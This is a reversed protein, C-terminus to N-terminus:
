LNRRYIEECMLATGCANDRSLDPTAFFVNDTKLLTNRILTNSMVGGAFLVPTDPYDNKLNNCVKQISSAIYTFLFKATDCPAHNEDLMKECKNQLGSFSIDYGKVSVKPKFNEKSKLSLADLEKGCPFDLGLKIGLRDIAQGANLDSSGGLIQIDFVKDGHNKPHVFVIESTGGSIHFSIIDKGLLANNQRNYLAARIHGAQHSFCYLHVNSSFAVASAFSQGALFCPMYSCAIDRPYGSYAVACIKYDDSYIKEFLEKALEPLAKTHAFLAESQRLGCKGNDVPLLRRVEAIIKGKSCLALSTTYNSTDVGLYVNKM